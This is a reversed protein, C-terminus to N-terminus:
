SYVTSNDYVFCANSGECNLVAHLLRYGGPADWHDPGVEATYAMANFVNAGLQMLGNAWLQANLPQGVLSQAGQQLELMASCIDLMELASTSSSAASRSAPQYTNAEIGACKKEAPTSPWPANHQDDADIGPITGVALANAFQDQPVNGELATTADDTNFGYRPNYHQSEADLTFLLAYSGAGYNGGGQFIVNSVGDLQFHAVAQKMTNAIDSITDHPVEFTDPKQVGASQLAPLTVQQWVRENVPDQAIVVGLKYNPGGKFFDRSQLGAIEWLMTRDLATDATFWIYPSAQKLFALDVTAQQTDFNLTGSEAYCANANADDPPGGGGIVAFVHYDETMTHCAQENITPDTEAQGNDETIYIPQIRRGGIGGHANLWDVMTQEIDHQPGQSAVKVGFANNAAQSNTLDIFGIRVTTATVGPGDRGGNSNAFAAAAASSAAASSQSSAAGAGSAGGSAGGSPNLATAGGRGGAGSGGGGAGGPLGGNAGGALAGGAAGPGGTLQGTFGLAFVSALALVAVPTALQSRSARLASGLRLRMDVAGGRLVQQMASVLLMLLAAAGLAATLWVWQAVVHPTATTAPPVAGQTPTSGGSGGGQAPAASPQPAVPAPNVAPAAHVAPAPAVAPAGSGAGSYAPAALGGFFSTSAPPEFEVQATTRTHDFAVSWASPAVGVSTGNAPPYAVLALGTNGDQEWRQALPALAFVWTGDAQPEGTAHVANCDYPPQNSQYGNSSLPQDLICAQIAAQGPEVNDSQSSNPALVLVLGDISSGTPLSELNLRILGTVVPQGGFGGVHVDQPNSGAYPDQGGAATYGQYQASIKGTDASAGPATALAFGAAGAVIAALLAARGPRRTGARAATRGITAERGRAAFESRPM